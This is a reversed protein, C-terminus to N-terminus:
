YLEDAYVNRLNFEELANLYAQHAEQETDFLGLYTKKKNIYTQSRWKNRGKDFSAGTLGKDAKRKKLGHTKNERANCWELNSAACNTPDLDLHNVDPLNFPNPVFYFAVLRHLRKRKGETLKVYLYGNDYLVPALPKGLNRFRGLDSVEYGDFGEIKAWNEM